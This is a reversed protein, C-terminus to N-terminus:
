SEPAVIKFTSKKIALTTTLADAATQRSKNFLM